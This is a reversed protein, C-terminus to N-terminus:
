RQCSNVKRLLFIYFAPHFHWLFHVLTVDECGPSLKCEKSEKGGGDQHEPTQIVLTFVHGPFSPHFCSCLLPFSRSPACPQCKAQSLHSKSVGWSYIKLFGGIHTHTHTHAGRQVWYFSFVVTKKEKVYSLKKKNEKVIKCMKMILLPMIYSETCKKKKVCNNVSGCFYLFCLKDQSSPSSWVDRDM